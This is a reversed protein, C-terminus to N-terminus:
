PDPQQGDVAPRLSGTTVPTAYHYTQRFDNVENRVQQKFYAGEFGIKANHSGTIYSATARSRYTDSNTMTQLGGPFQDNISGSILSSFVSCTGPSATSNSVASNVKIAVADRGVTPGRECVRPISRVNAYERHRTTDQHTPVITIGAEFLTRNTYPNTWSLQMLRNPRSQLSFYSEPSDVINIM